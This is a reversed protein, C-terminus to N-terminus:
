LKKVRIKEAAGSVRTVEDSLNSKIAGWRAFIEHVKAAPPHVICDLLLGDVAAVPNAGRTELFSNWVVGSAPKLIFQIGHAVAEFIEGHPVSRKIAAVQEVTAPPYESSYDFELDVIPEPKQKPKERSEREPAETM